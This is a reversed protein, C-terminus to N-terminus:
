KKCFTDTFIRIIIFRGTIVWGWQNNKHSKDDFFYQYHSAHMFFFCLIQNLFVLINPINIGAKPIGSLLNLAVGRFNQYQLPPM